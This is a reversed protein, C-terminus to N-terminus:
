RVLGRAGFRDTRSRFRGGINSDPFREGEVRPSMPPNGTAICKHSCVGRGGIPECVASNVIEHSRFRGRGGREASKNGEQDDRRDKRERRCGTRHVRPFM